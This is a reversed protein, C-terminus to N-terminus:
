YYRELCRENQLYANQFVALFQDLVNALVGQRLFIAAGITMHALAHGVHLVQQVAVTTIELLVAVVPGDLFQTV